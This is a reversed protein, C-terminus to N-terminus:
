LAGLVEARVARGATQAEDTEFQRLDREHGIVRYLEALAEESRVEPHNSIEIAHQLEHALSAVVDYRNMMTKIQARVYRYPGSAGIFHVCGRLSGEFRPIAEFYVIVDSREVRDLMEALTPSQERADAILAALFANTTRVNQLQSPAATSTPFAMLAAALAVVHLM